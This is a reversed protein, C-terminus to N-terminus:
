PGYDMTMILWFKFNKLFIFETLEVKKKKVSIQLNSYILEKM